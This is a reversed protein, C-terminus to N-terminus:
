ARWHALFASLTLADAEERSLAHSFACREGSAGPGFSGCEAYFATDHAAPKNWDHFGAPAIHAGLECDILVTKAFERWPRGLYVSGDPVGEDVFRCHSFVYGFRQGEPTSAATAYGVYPTSRDSRGDINQITCRDFWAAAGGFIFDVDGSILCRRYVHHQAVRPAHQKPGIFGDKEIERPPLPATFLTDQAGLLRCDECLLGDGDAYLAIAQGAAERPAADNEITLGRLTIYPADTRLTATRFTGRKRGDALLTYAADGWVIRTCDAGAGELTTNPRALVVKERYVGPALRLLAPSGDQPLSDIARQLAGEGSNPLVLCVNEASM